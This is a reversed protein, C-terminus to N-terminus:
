QADGLRAPTSSRDLAAPDPAQHTPAAMRDLGAQAAAATTSDSMDRLHELLARAREIEGSQLLIGAGILREPDAASINPLHSGLLELAQDQAGAKALWQAVVGVFRARVIPDELPADVMPKVTWLASVYNGLNARVTALLLRLDTQSPDNDLLEALLRKAEWQASRNKDQVALVHARVIKAPALDPALILAAETFLDAPLLLALDGSDRYLAVYTFAEATLVKALQRVTDPTAARRAASEAKRVPPPFALPPLIERLEAMVEVVTERAAPDVQYNIVTSAVITEPYAVLELTIVSVNNPIATESLTVRVSRSDPRALPLTQQALLVRNPDMARVRFARPPGYASPPPNLVLVAVPQGPEPFPLEPELSPPAAGPALVLSPPALPPPPPNHPDFFAMPKKGLRTRLAEIRAKAEPIGKHHALMYWSLAEELKASDPPGNELFDAYLYQPRAEGTAAAKAFWFDAKAPDEAKCSGHAYCTALDTWALIHPHGMQAAKTLWAAGLEPDPDIGDGDLLMRGIQWAAASSGGEAAARLFNLAVVANKNLGHSGQRQREGIVALSAPYGLNAAAMVHAQSMEWRGLAEAARGAQHVFRPEAISADVDEAIAAECAQLAQEANATLHASGVPPGIRQPDDPDAAYQDCPTLPWREAAPFHPHLDIFVGNLAQQVPTLSPTAAGYLRFCEHIYDLAKSSGDLSITMSKGATTFVAKSGARLRQEVEPEDGTGFWARDPTM